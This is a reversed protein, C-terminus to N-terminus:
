CPWWCSAFHCGPCASRSPQVQLLFHLCRVAAEVVREDECDLQRLLQPLGGATLVARVGDELKYALSGVTTTAQGFAWRM